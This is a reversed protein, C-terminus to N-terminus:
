NQKHIRLERISTAGGGRRRMLFTSDFADLLADM